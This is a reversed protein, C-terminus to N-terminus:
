IYVRVQETIQQTNAEISEKKCVSNIRKLVSKMSEIVSDNDAVDLEFYSKIIKIDTIGNLCQYAFAIDKMEVKSRQLIKKAFLAFYDSHLSYGGLISNHMKSQDIRNIVGDFLEEIDEYKKMNANKIYRFLEFASSDEKNTQIIESKYSYGDVCKEETINLYVYNKHESFKIKESENVFHIMGNIKVIGKSVIFSNDESINVQLGSVVGDDYDEFLINVYEIPYDRVAELMHQKLVLGHEFIPIFSLRVM